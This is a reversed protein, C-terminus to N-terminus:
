DKAEVIIRAPQKEGEGFGMDYDITLSLRNGRQELEISRTCIEILMSGAPTVYMSRTTEGMIYLMKADTHGKHEVTVDHGDIVIMSNRVDGSEADKESYMLYQKSNKEFYRGNYCSTVINKDEGTGHIGTIKITVESKM